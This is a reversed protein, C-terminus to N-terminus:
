HDVPEPPEGFAAPDDLEGDATAQEDQMREWPTGVKGSGALLPCTGLASACASPTLLEWSWAAWVAQWRKYGALPPDSVADSMCHSSVPSQGCAMTCCTRVPMRLNAWHM